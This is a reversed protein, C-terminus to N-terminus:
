IWQKGEPKSTLEVITEAPNDIADAVGGVIEPESPELPQEPEVTEVPEQEENAEGIVIDILVDIKNNISEVLATLLGYSAMVDLDEKEDAEKVAEVADIVADTVADATAEVIAAVDVPEQKTEEKKSENSDEIITISM